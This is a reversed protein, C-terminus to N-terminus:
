LLAVAGAASVLGGAGSFFGGIKDGAAASKAAAAAAEAQVQEAKDAQEQELYGNVNINTQMGVLQSAVAGQQANSRIIAGASGGIRLGGAGAAATASGQALSVQRATQVQQFKGIGEAEQANQAALTASEGFLGAAATEGAATEEAGQAAFIDNVAGGIGGVAGSLGSSIGTIQSQSLSFGGGIGPASEGEPM